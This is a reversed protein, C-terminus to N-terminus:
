VIGGNKTPNALGNYTFSSIVVKGRVNVLDYVVFGETRSSRFGWKCSGRARCSWAWGRTLGGAWDPWLLASIACLSVPLLMLVFYWNELGSPDKRHLYFHLFEPRPPPSSSAPFRVLSHSQSSPSSPTSSSSPDSPPSKSNSPWGTPDHSQFSDLYAHHYLSKALLQVKM